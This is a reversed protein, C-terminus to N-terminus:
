RAPCAAPSGRGGSPAPPRSRCRCSRRSSSSGQPPQMFVPVSRSPRSPRAFPAFFDLLLFKPQEKRSRRTVKAAKAYPLGSELAIAHVVDEEFGLGQAGPVAGRLDEVVDVQLHPAALHHREHAAVAGALGGRELRQHAHQGLPAARDAEQAVVDRLGLRVMRRAQAQAEHGLVPAHEGVERHHLVELHAALGAALPGVAAGRRQPRGLLQELEEGVEALHGVARAAAHATALLLHEGHGSRQHAVRVQHQEVFGGLAHRGDDDLLHRVHDQFQLRM